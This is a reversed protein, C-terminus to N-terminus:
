MGNGHETDESSERTLYVTDKPHQPPAYVSMLRLPITGTNVINHWTGAPIIMAYDGSIVTHFPLKDRTLGMQVTGIGCEVRILQEVDPHMELGIEEGVPICMLTVQLHDGTWLAMRFTNNRKALHNINAAFFNPGYDLLPLRVAPLPMQVQSQQTFQNSEM